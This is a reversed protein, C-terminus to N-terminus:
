DVVLSLVTSDHQGIVYLLYVGSSLGKLDIPIATKGTSNADWKRILQGKNTYLALSAVQMGAQKILLQTTEQAPNPSLTIGQNHNLATTATTQQFHYHVLSDCGNSATFVQSIVTDQTILLGQWEISNTFTIDEYVPPVELVNLHHFTISDYEILDQTEQLITDQYINIGHYIDGACLDVYVADSFVPKLIQHFVTGTQIPPNLDFYIGATNSIVTEAPIDAKPHIAFSFFGHSEAENATSDVLNIEPFTITLERETLIEWEYNHSAAVPRFSSLDLWESLQDRLVVTRAPANGTNQFQITYTLEWDKEIENLPGVGTPSASKDNPDYPGVVIRCISENFPDGDGNPLLNPPAASASCAQSLLSIPEPYPHGQPQNISFHWFGNDLDPLWITDAEQPDLIVNDNLYLIIDDNVINIEYSQAVDMASAGTNVIRFATEEEECFTNVELNAGNWNLVMDDCLEAPTVFANFCISEDLELSSCDTDFGIRIFGDEGVGIQDFHFVLSSDTLQQYPMSSYDFILREDFRLEITVNEAIATGANYYNIGTTTGFCQSLDTNSLSIVVLPCDILAQAVFNLSDLNDSEASLTFTSDEPCVQWYASPVLPRVTYEGDYPLYAAYHGDTHNHVIQEVAEHELQVQWNRVPTLSDQYECNLVEDHRIYGQVFKNELFNNKYYIISKRNHAIIEQENDDNIDLIKAQNVFVFRDDEFPQPLYPSTYYNSNPINLSFGEESLLDLLGDGNIDLTSLDHNAYNAQGLRVIRPMSFSDEDVLYDSTMVHLPSNNIRARFIIDPYPDEDFNNAIKLPHAVTNEPLNITKLPTFLAGDEQKLAWTYKNLFDPYGDGNLDHILIDSFPFNYSLNTAQSSFGNGENLQNWSIYFSNNEHLWILDSDGDNDFDGVGVENYSSRLNENSVIIEEFSQGATGIYVKLISEQNGSLIDESSIIDIFEDDNLYILHKRGVPLTDSITEILRLPAFNGNGENEHFFVGPPDFVPGQDTTAVSLIDMDGDQDWDNFITQRIYKAIPNIIRPTAFNGDGTGMRVFLFYTDELTVLDLLGDNNIDALKPSSGATTENDILSNEFELSGTNIFKHCYEIGNIYPSYISTLDMDGDNDIDGIDYDFFGDIEFATSFDGSGAENRFVRLSNDNQDNALDMTYNFVLEPFEDANMQAATLKAASFYGSFTDLNTRQYEEFTFASTQEVIILELYRNNADIRKHVVYALDQDQDQDFDILTWAVFNSLSIENLSINSTYEFDTNPGNNKNINLYLIITNFLFIDALGDGDIDSVTQQHYDSQLDNSTYLEPDYSFVGQGDNERYPKNAKVINGSVLDLDGDEDMDALTFNNIAKPLGEWTPEGFAPREIYNGQGDINEYWSFNGKHGKKTIFIDLDGDTDIDELEYNIIEARDYVVGISDRELQASVSFSLLLLLPLLLKM